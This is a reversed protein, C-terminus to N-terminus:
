KLMAEIAAAIEDVDKDFEGAKNDNLRQTEVERDKGALLGVMRNFVEEAQKHAAHEPKEKLLRELTSLYRYDNLGPTIEALFTISPVMRGEADSNFWCYDDERCDLAYYPDGAGAYFHWTLRLSLGHKSVLMKLYRGFTWRCGGNYFSFSNKAAHVVELSKEDHGNLSPIPLAKILEYHPDKPDNGEMSTFGTFTTRKLGEMAARHAQANKICGPLADGMPEDCLSWAVPLWDNEVAHDDIAKYIAKIMTAADTFGGAKAAAEDPGAATGYINYPAGEFGYSSIMKFGKARLIKMEADAQTTNLIVKGDKLTYRLNPLGSLSTCGAERLVDLSKELMSRHWQQTEPCDQWPLSIIYSFPGVAVDTVPDLKFRRVTLTLAISQEKGHQPKIAISGKYIGPTTKEPIRTRIWFTRTVGKAEPAPTPHWYRPGVSYMTGEMTGRAISYSIWGPNLASPDLTEGGDTKLASVQVDVSGLDSGPQLSFTIPIEEGLAAAFSLGEAGIAEGTRPGDFARPTSMYHRHFLTYGDQPAAKGTQKPIVQRFYANFQTKRRANVWNLFKEGEAAKSEPFVVLGSLCIGYAGSSSFDIEMKGGTVDVTTSRWPLKPKIYVDFTDVGPLVERHANQWFQQKFSEFTQGENIWPRGNVSVQRKTYTQVEGWYGGPSDIIMMVRYKGDPVDVRLKATNMCVFSQTLADPQLVNFDRWFDPAGEWGYGREPSYRTGIGAREFGECLPADSPCFSIAHLGDFQVNATDLRELRFNFYYLPPAGAV